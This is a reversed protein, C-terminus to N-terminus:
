ILNELCTIWNNFHECEQRLANLGIRKTIMPGHWAKQYNKFVSIIRRSPITSPNDDIEEPSNFANKISNITQEKDPILMANATIQPSVFILAEFEHLQLYPIFKLNDIDERFKVELSDVREYCTNGQMENRFPVISSFGYFDIMTTVATASSDGLLRLLDNKVKNYSVIGGKFDPGVKVRKTTALKPILALGNNFFYPYLIDRVFTEETQGEVLVLIKKKM